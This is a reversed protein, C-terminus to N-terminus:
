RIKLSSFFQLQQMVRCNSTMKPNIVGDPFHNSKKKGAFAKFLIYHVMHRLTVHELFNLIVM